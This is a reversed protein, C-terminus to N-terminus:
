ACGRAPGRDLDLERVPVRVRGGGAALEARVVGVAEAAAVVDLVSQVQLRLRALLLRDDGLEGDGLGVLARGAQGM